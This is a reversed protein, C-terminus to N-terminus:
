EYRKKFRRMPDNFETRFLHPYPPAKPPESGEHPWGVKGDMFRYHEGLVYDPLFGFLKKSDELFWRYYKVLRDWVLDVSRRDDEVHYLTLVMIMFAIQANGSEFSGYGATQLKDSLMAIYESIRMMHSVLAMRSEPKTKLFLLIRDQIENFIEPCLIRRAGDEDIPIRVTLTNEIFDSLAAKDLVTRRRFDLDESHAPPAGEIRAGDSCNRIRFKDDRFFRHERLVLEIFQLSRRFLDNSEVLGGFNGEVANRDSVAYNAGQDSVGAEGYISSYKSHMASGLKIKRGCDFGFLYAETFGFAFISAVGLNGVLPNMVDIPRLRPFLDPRGACFWFFPEDPKGFIATRKFRSSTKPHIVDGAILTLSDKFEQDPIADITESIEPTRETAAYFDPKIGAHYLTDLATGCAIIVAKDQNRRLFPIDHDLSPGNAVVFLPWRRYKEPLKADRLVFHKGAIMSKFGHSVGFLHDDFFGMAEHIANFKNVVYDASEKIEPSAYHVYTVKFCSLFEGHTMYFEKLLVELEDGSRGVILKFGMGSKEIFGLIGTWDCAYLSAYFVDPDPEIAILSGVEIRSLIESLPYGLGIGLVILNPVGGLESPSYVLKPQSNIIDESAKLMQNAYRITIQGYPDYQRVGVTGLLRESDLLEQVQRGTEEAPENTDYFMRGGEDPFMLNPEGNEACFFQLAKKPRYDKFSEYVDPLYKKFAEMSAGFRAQLDQGLQVQLEALEADTMHGQVNSDKDDKDSM